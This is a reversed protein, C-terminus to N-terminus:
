KLKEVSDSSVTILASGLGVIRLMLKDEGQHEILEGVVGKLPGCVVRVATGQTKEEVLEVFEGSNEVMSRLTEMQCEPVSVYQGKERLIFSVGKIGKVRSIDDASLRVFLCGSVVPIMVKRKRKNWLRVVSQLPLYSEIGAKDLREKVSKEAKAATYVAYWCSTKEEIKRNTTEM